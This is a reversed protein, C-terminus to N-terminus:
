NSFIIIWIHSSNTRDFSYIISWKTLLPFIILSFSIFFYLLLIKELMLLIKLFLKHQKLFRETHKFFLWIIRKNDGLAQSLSAIQFSGKLM